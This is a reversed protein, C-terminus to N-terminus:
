ENRAIIKRTNKVGSRPVHLQSAGTNPPKIRKKNKPTFFKCKRLRWAKWRKACESKITQNLRRRKWPERPENERRQNKRHIHNM